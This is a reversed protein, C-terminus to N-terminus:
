QEDSSLFASRSFVPKVWKGQENEQFGMKGLAMIAHKCNPWSADIEVVRRGEIMQVKIIPESLDKGIVRAEMTPHADKDGGVGNAKFSFNSLELGANIIVNKADSSLIDYAHKEHNLEIHNLEAM